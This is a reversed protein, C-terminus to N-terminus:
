DRDSGAWLNQLSDLVEQTDFPKSLFGMGYASYYDLNTDSQVLGSTFLAKGALEEDMKRIQRHLMVGDMDPLNFDLIAADYIHQRVLEIAGAADAASDVVYGQAVLAARDEHRRVVDETSLVQSVRDPDHILSLDHHLPGVLFKDALIEFIQEANM